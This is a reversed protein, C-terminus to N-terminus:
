LKEESKNGARAPSGLVRCGKTSELRFALIEPTRALGLPVFGNISRFYVDPLVAFIM